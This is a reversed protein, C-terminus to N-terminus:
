GNCGCGGQPVRLALKGVLQDETPHEPDLWDNNDGQLVYGDDAVDVIRHMVVTDLDDSHYGVVDGVGYDSAPILVALDGAHFGPEMSNGVTSVVAVRGVTLAAVAVLVVVSLLGVAVLGLKKM